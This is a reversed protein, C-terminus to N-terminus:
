CAMDRGILASWGIRQSNMIETEHRAVYISYRVTLVVINYKDQLLNAFKKLNLKIIFFLFSLPFGM